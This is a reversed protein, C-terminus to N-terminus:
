RNGGQVAALAADLSAPDHVALVELSRDIRSVLGSLVKGPGFEVVRTAGMTKLRQVVEVWRVPASAQRVLADRIRSPDDEVAVDVNNVVPVQPARVDIAALARELREGAPQLLSSHFPASVPLPLARKAGLAKARECAREVAERHGAIVVQSPANFNAPAVVQGAAAAMAENCAQQVAADDLGLIAAMGGEGVPVAEQMAQARLRVLRIADDFAIAGAAALATYEGLSHGALAVPAPGGADRWASWCAYGAVLMAPQTNVTLSLTEAPGHAILSSLKEGLAEDARALLSQVTPTDAFGDLMGVSQSGQGPFVFALTM